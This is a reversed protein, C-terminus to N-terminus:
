MRFAPPDLRRRRSRPLPGDPPQWRQRPSDERDALQFGHRALASGLEGIWSRDNLAPVDGSIHVLGARLSITLRAGDLEDLSVTLSRPPPAHELIRVVEAIRRALPTPPLGRMPATMTASREIPPEAPSISEEGPTAPPADLSSAAGQAAADLTTTATDVVSLVPQPTSMPEIATTTMSATGASTRVAATEPTGVPRLAPPAATLGAVPAVLSAVEVGPHALARYRALVKAVYEEAVPVGPGGDWERAVRGPGANYAALALDIRGFRDILQRLFRAGGELNATPDAPDVGLGAATAPMLQTLGVAGAGSVAEPDFSSETWVLATLLRPDVGADEAARAIAAHWPQAAAPLAEFSVAPASLTGDLLRDTAVALQGGFSAGTLGFRAALESVRLQVAGLPSITM